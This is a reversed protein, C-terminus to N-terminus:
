KARSHLAVWSHISPMCLENTTNWSFRPFWPWRWFFIFLLRHVQWYVFIAVWGSMIVQPHSSSLIGVSSPKESHKMITWIRYLKWSILCGISYVWSGVRFFTSIKVVATKIPEPDGSYLFFCQVSHTTWPQTQEKKLVFGGFLPTYDSLVMGFMNQQHRIQSQELGPPAGERKEKCFMQLSWKPHEYETNMNNLVDWKCSWTCHRAKLLLMSQPFFLTSVWAVSWSDSGLGFIDITANVHNLHNILLHFVRHTMATMRSTWAHEESGTPWNRPDPWTEALGENRGLQQNGTILAKLYSYWTQTRPRIWQPESQSHSWSIRLCDVTVELHPLSGVQLEHNSLPSSKWMHKLIARFDKSFACFNWSGEDMHLTSESVQWQM